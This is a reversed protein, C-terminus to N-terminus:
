IHNVRRDKQDDRQGSYVAHCFLVKSPNEPLKLLVFLLVGSRYEEHHPGSVGCGHALLCRMIM